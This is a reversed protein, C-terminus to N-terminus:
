HKERKNKKRIKIKEKHGTKKRRRAIANFAIGQHSLIFGSEIVTVNQTKTRLVLSQITGIGLNVEASNPYASLIVRKVM